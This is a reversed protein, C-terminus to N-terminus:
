MLECQSVGISLEGMMSARGGDVAVVWKRKSLMDHPEPHEVVCVSCAAQRMAAAATSGLAAKFGKRGHAGMFLIDLACEDALQLLSEATGRGPAKERSIFQQPVLPMYHMRHMEYQRMLHAPSERYDGRAAEPTTVHLVFM